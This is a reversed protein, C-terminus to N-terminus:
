AKDRPAAALTAGTRSANARCYAVEIARPATHALRLATTVARHHCAIVLSEMNM